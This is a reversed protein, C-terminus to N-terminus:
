LWNIWMKSFALASEPVNWFEFVCRSCEKFGQVRNVDLDCGFKVM